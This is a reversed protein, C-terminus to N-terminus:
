NITNNFFNNLDLIKELGLLDGLLAVLGLAIVIVFIGMAGDTLKKRAIEMKGKDGEASLFGYGALIIQIAFFIFAFVTLVGVINSILKEALTVSADANTPSVGPGTLHFQIALLKSNNIPDM